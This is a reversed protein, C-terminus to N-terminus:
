SVSLDTYSIVAARLEELREREHNTQSSLAEDRREVGDNCQGGEKGRSKMGDKDRKGREQRVKPTRAERAAQQSLHKDEMMKEGGDEM